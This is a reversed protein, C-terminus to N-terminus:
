AKLWCCLREEGTGRHRWRRFISRFRDSGLNDTRGALTRWRHHLMPSFRLTCARRSAHKVGIIWRTGRAPLAAAAFAVTQHWASKHFPAGSRYASVRALAHARAKM